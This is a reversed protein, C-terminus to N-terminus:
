ICYLKVNVVFQSTVCLWNIIQLKLNGIRFNLKLYKLLIHLLVFEM